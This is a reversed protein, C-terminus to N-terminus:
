ERATSARKPISKLAHGARQRPTPKALRNPRAPGTPPLRMPTLTLSTLAKWINPISNEVPCFQGFVTQNLALPPLPAEGFFARETTYATRFLPGWDTQVKKESASGRGFRVGEHAVQNTFWPMM